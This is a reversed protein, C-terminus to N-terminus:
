NCRTRSVTARMLLVSTFEYSCRNDCSKTKLYQLFECIQLGFCPSIYKWSYEGHDVFTPVRVMPCFWVSPCSERESAQFTRRCQRSGRPLGGARVRAGPSRDMCPGKGGETGLVIDRSRCPKFVDPQMSVIELISLYKTAHGTPRVHFLPASAGVAVGAYMIRM